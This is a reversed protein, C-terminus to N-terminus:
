SGSLPTLHTGPQGSPTAVSSLPRCAPYPQDGTAATKCSFSEGSVTDIVLRDGVPASLDVATLKACKNTSGGKSQATLRVQTAQEDLSVRTQADCVASLDVSLENPPSFVTAVSLVPVDHWGSSSCSSLLLAGAIFLLVLSRFQPTM